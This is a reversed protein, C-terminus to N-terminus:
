SCYPARIGNLLWACRRLNASSSTSPLIQFSLESSHFRSVPPFFSGSRTFGFCREVTPFRGARLFRHAAFSSRRATLVFGEKRAAAALWDDLTVVELSPPRRQATSLLPLSCRTPRARRIPRSACAAERVPDGPEVEHWAASLQRRRDFVEIAATEDCATASRSALDGVRM